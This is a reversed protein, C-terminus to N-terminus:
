PKAAAIMAKVEEVTRTKGPEMHVVAHCNACLPILDTLPNVQHEKGQEFLPKIHHVHIFGAAAPGYTKGFDFGCAKCQTGHEKIAMARLKPNREYTTTYRYGPKGEALSELQGFEDQAIAPYTVLRPRAGGMSSLIAQYDAESIARVASRWYNSAKSAPITELYQGDVKFSVAIEFEAYDEIYAFLDGKHSNPDPVVQSIVGMGFYHPLPSKRKAEYAKNKMKGKYYIVQTGPPIIAAYSKPFHYRIGTEDEWQSEDNETIVAYAM